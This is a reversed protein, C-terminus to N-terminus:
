AYREHWHAASRPPDLLAGFRRVHELRRAVITELLENDRLRPLGARSLRVNIFQEDTCRVGGKRRCGRFDDFASAIIDRRKQDM